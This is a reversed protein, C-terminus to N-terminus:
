EGDCATHELGDERSKTARSSAELNSNGIHEHRVSKANVTSIHNSEGASPAFRRQHEPQRILKGVQAPVYHSGHRGPDENALHFVRRGPKHKTGFTSHQGLQGPEQSIDSVHQQGSPGLDLGILYGPHRWGQHVPDNRQTRHIYDDYLRISGAAHWELRRVLVLWHHRCACPQQHRDCAKVDNATGEVRLM